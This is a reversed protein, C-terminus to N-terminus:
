ENSSSRIKELVQEYFFNEKFLHGLERSGQYSNSFRELREEIATNRIKLNIINIKIFIEQELNKLRRGRVTFHKPLQSFDKLIAFHPHDTLKSSIIYIPYPIQPHVGILDLAKKLHTLFTGLDEETLTTADFFLPVEGAHFEDLYKCLSEETKHNVKLEEWVPLRHYKKDM